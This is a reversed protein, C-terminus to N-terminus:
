KLLEEMEGATMGKLFIHTEDLKPYNAIGAKQAFDDFSLSGIPKKKDYDFFAVRFDDCELAKGTNPNKFMM